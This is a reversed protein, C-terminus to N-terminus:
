THELLDAERLSKEMWEQYERAYAAFKEDETEIIRSSIGELSTNIETLEEEDTVEEHLTLDPTASIPAGEEVEAQELKKIKEIRAEDIDEKFFHYLTDIDVMDLKSQIMAEILYYWKPPPIRFGGKPFRYDNKGVSFVLFWSPHIRPGIKERGGARDIRLISLINARVHSWYPFGPRTSKSEIGRLGDFQRALPKAFDFWDVLDVESREKIPRQALSKFEGWLLIKQHGSTYNCQYLALEEMPALQLEIDYFGSEDIFERRGCAMVIKEFDTLNSNRLIPHHPSDKKLREMESKSGELRGGTNGWAPPKLGYGFIEIGLGEPKVLNHVLLHTTDSFPHFALVQVTISRIANETLADM